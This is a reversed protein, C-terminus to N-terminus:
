TLVGSSDSKDVVPEEIGPDVFLLAKLVRYQTDSSM